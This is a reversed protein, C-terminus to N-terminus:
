WLPKSMSETYASFMFNFSLSIRTEDSASADFSHPLWTPFMRLMDSAEFSAGTTEVM